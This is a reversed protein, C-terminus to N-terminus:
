LSVRGGGGSQLPKSPTPPTSDASESVKLGNLRDASEAPILARCNWESLEAKEPDAALETGVGEVGFFSFFVLFLFCRAM